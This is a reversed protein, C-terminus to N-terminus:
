SLKAMALCEKWYLFSYVPLTSHQLNTELLHISPFQQQTSVLTCLLINSLNWHRGIRTVFTATVM